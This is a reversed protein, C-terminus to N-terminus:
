NDITCATGNLTFENPKANSGSYSINFGLNISAGVPITGNYTLNKASVNSGNQTYSANWMNTIKQNGSFSWNLTWGNVANNSNNKITISITAGNGWDNLINYSLVFGNAIPTPTPTVTPTPTITPTPTPTPNILSKLVTITSNYWIVAIKSYGSPTLHLNDSYIDSSLLTADSLKVLYVHKGASAKSSVIGPIAAIYQEIKDHISNSAPLHYYDAVFLILNPKRNTIQDILSSLGSTNPAGFVVDNGGIWLLMVDPNYTDLWSNVNSAVQPITWGSHGEHNKDALGSPGGSQSGVFDVSLGANIYYSYLDTRYAGMNPDGIGATVSDGCPMIKITQAAYSINTREGIGINSLHLLAIVLLVLLISRYRSM